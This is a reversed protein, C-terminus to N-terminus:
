SIISVNLKGSILRPLLRDRIQRLQSNQENLNDIQQMIPEVITKFKLQLEKGAIWLKLKHLHNQNLSPVGAGSNFSEFDINKLTYYVYLPENGKFEKVYLATNLPWGNQNVYIVTGLSGSRGTTIIPANVKYRNHYAKVSTSAIVPYEGEVIKDDPLDFGRNLKIFDMFYKIEGVDVPAGKVFKAEIYGPFRMRVFWEKYLERATEELLKIRQNNLEILDKYTTIITAIRQQAHLPPLFFKFLTLDNANANPQASGGAIIQIFDKYVNSEILIGLFNRDINESPILKVLYSAFVADPTGKRIQKAYGVTAGTRAVVIDNENLRYKEFDSKSISCYPVKEWEIFDPTIDTIRVFKVGTNIDTASATYGYQTKCYKKLSVEKWEIM